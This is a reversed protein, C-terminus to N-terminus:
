ICDQILKNSKPADTDHISHNSISELRLRERLSGTIIPSIDEPEISHRECIELIAETYTFGSHIVCDYIQQILENKKLNLGLDNEISNLMM